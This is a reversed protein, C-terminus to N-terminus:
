HIEVPSLKVVVPSMQCHTLVDPNTVVPIGNANLPYFVPISNFMRCHVPCDGLVAVCFSEGWGGHSYFWPRSVQYLDIELDM